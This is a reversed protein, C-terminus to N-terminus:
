GGCDYLEAIISVLERVRWTGQINWGGDMEGTIFESIDLPISNTSIGQYAPGHIHGATLPSSLSNLQLLDVRCPLM